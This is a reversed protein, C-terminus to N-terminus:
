IQGVRRPAYALPSAEAERNNYDYRSHKQELASPDTYRSATPLPRPRLDYSEVPPAVAPPRAHGEAHERWADISRNAYVLRTELDRVREGAAREADEVRRVAMIAELVERVSWGAERM